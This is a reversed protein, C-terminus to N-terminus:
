PQHFEPEVSPEASQLSVFEFGGLPGQPRGGRNRGAQRPWGLGAAYNRNREAGDDGVFALVTRSPAQNPHALGGRQFRLRATRRATGPIRSKLIPGPDSTGPGALWDHGVFSFSSRRGTRIKSPQEAFGNKGDGTHAAGIWRWGCKSCAPFRPVETSGSISSDTIGSTFVPSGSNRCTYRLRRWDITEPANRPPWRRGEVRSRASSSPM